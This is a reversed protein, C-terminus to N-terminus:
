EPVDPGDDQSDNPDESLQVTGANAFENAWLKGTAVVCIVALIAIVLINISVKKM